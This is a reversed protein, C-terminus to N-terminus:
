CNLRKPVSAKPPATRRLLHIQKDHNERALLRLFDDFDKRQNLTPDLLVVETAGRKPACTTSQRHSQRSRRLLTCRLEQPLLLVQVQVRLRSNDRTAALARRSRELYRGSLAIISRQSQGATQSVAAVASPRSALSRAILTQKSLQGDTAHLGALLETFTQEGEGIVRM